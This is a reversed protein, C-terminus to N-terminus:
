STWLWTISKTPLLILPHLIFIPPNVDSVIYNFSMIPKDGTWNRHELRALALHSGCRGNYHAQNAKQKTTRTRYSPGSWISSTCQNIISGTQLESQSMQMLSTFWHNYTPLLSLQAHSVSTARAYVNIFFRKRDM